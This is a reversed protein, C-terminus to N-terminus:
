INKFREITEKIQYFISGVDDDKEFMERSDIERLAELLAQNKQTEEQIFDEYRELKQLLNWIGYISALLCAIVIGLIIEM